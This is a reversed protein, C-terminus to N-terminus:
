VQLKRTLIKETYFLTYLINSYQKYDGDITSTNTCYIFILFLSPHLDEFFTNPFNSYELIATCTDMRTLNHGLDTRICYKSCMVVFRQM